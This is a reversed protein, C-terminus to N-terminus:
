MRGSHVIQNQVRRKARVRQGGKWVRSDRPREWVRGTLFEELDTTKLCFQRFDGLAARVAIVGGQARAGLMEIVARLKRDGYWWSKVERVVDSGAAENVIQRAVLHAVAARLHVLPETLARYPPTGEHLLAVEDDQFDGEEMFRGFVRGFGRMGLPAMERARIAGMSSLGWVEVGRELAERIEAHGVALADHFVGDVIVIVRPRPRAHLLTAVDFRRAPPRVRFPRALTRAHASAALTPGAFMVLDDARNPM